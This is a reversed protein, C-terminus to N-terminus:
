PNTYISGLEVVIFDGATGAAKRAYGLVADGTTAAIARGSADTQVEAHLTVADGAEVEVLGQKVVSITDGAVADFLNVGRAKEGASGCIVYAGQTSDPKVFRKGAIAGGAVGSDVYLHQEGVMSM